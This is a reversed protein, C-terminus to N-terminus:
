VPKALTLEGRHIADHHERCVVVLNELDNGGGQAAPTLHHVTLDRDTGCVVCGGDRNLVRERARTAGPRHWAHSSPSITRHKSCRSGSPIRARCVTCFSGAM